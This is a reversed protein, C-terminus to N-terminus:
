YESEHPHTVFAIVAFILDIAFVVIGYDIYFIIDLTLQAGFIEESYISIGIITYIIVIILGNLNYMVLKRSKESDMISGILASILLSIPLITLFLFSLFNYELWFHASGDDLIIGLLYIRNDNYNIFSGFIFGYPIYLALLLLLTLIFSIIGTKNM